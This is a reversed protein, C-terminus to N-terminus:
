QAIWNTRTPTVNEKTNWSFDGAEEAYGELVYRFAPFCRGYSAGPRTKNGVESRADREAPRSVESKQGRVERM